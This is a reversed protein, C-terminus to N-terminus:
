QPKTVTILVAESQSAEALSRVQAVYLGPRMTDPIQATIQGPSTQLLPLPVDSLTVCSGGLVTPLPLTDSTAPAALNTGSVTIFAGPSFSTTGTNANVIGRSGAAIAPRVPAGSRAMPIVSLGSLTIVYVTGNSDV